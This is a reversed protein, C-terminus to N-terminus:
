QNMTRLAEKVVDYTVRYGLIDNLLTFHHGYQRLAISDVVEIVAHRLEIVDQESAEDNFKVVDIVRRIYGGVCWKCARVSNAQVAEGTCDLALSGVCYKDETWESLVRELVDKVTLM